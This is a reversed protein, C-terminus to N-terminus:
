GKLDRINRHHGCDLPYRVQAYVAEFENQLASLYALFLSNHVQILEIRELFNHLQM